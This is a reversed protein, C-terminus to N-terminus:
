PNSTKLVSFWDFRQPGAAKTILLRNLVYVAPKSCTAFLESALTESAYITSAVNSSTLIDSNLVRWKVATFTKRTYNRTFFQFKYASCLVRFVRFYSSVIIAWAAHRASTLPNMRNVFSIILLPSYIIITSSGFVTSKEEVLLSDISIFILTNLATILAALRSMSEICSESFYVSKFLGWFIVKLCWCNPLM